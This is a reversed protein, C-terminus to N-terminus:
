SAGRDWTAGSLVRLFAKSIDAFETCINGNIDVVKSISSSNRRAAIKSIFYSTSADGMKIEFDKARQYAIRLEVNKLQCYEQSLIREKQCLTHNMPDLQLQQQVQSVRETISTYSTKHIHKLQNKLKRLHQVIHYMACGKISVQWVKSVLPKFQSHQRWCNLYKFSSKKHPTSGGLSIVLPSHDSIGPTLAEVYADPFDLFWSVNALARDLSTWKRDAHEQKNTWTYWRGQTKLEELRATDIALNFEDMSNINPPDSSIREDSNRVCNMDGLILWPLSSSTRSSLFDWLPVRQAPHNFGYVCTVEMTNPGYSVLLHMWQSSSHQCQVNIASNRWIVWLRGNLHSSYNDLIYFQKFKKRHLSPAKNKRVRTEVICM